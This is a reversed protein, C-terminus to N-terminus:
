GNKPIRSLGITADAAIAKLETDTTVFESRNFLALSWPYALVIFSRPFLIVAFNITVITPIKSM